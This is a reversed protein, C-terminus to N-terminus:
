QIVYNSTHVKMLMASRPGIAAEFDHLHTRNSTGVEVLRAGPRSMIDPVRSAGGIEVLEGRSVIVQKRMALPNLLLFVAAANNNLNPHLCGGLFHADM